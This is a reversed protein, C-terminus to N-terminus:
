FPVEAADAEEQTMVPAPKRSVAQSASSASKTAEEDVMISDVKKGEFLTKGLKLVVRKGAWDDTEDGYIEALATGNTKNLVWGKDQGKLWCVLKTKKDSGRGIEEETIENITTRIGQPPFSATTMWQGSFNKEISPM